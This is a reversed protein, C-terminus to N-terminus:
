GCPLPHYRKHGFDSFNHHNPKVGDHYIDSSAYNEASHLALFWVSIDFPGALFCSFM